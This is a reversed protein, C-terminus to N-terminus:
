NATIAIKYCEDEKLGIMKRRARGTREKKNWKETRTYKSADAKPQEKVVQEKNIDRLAQGHEGMPKIGMSDPKRSMM